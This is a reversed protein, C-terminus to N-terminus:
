GGKNIKGIRKEQKGKIKENSLSFLETLTTFVSGVLCCPEIGQVFLFTEKRQM